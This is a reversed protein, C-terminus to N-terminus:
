LFLSCSYKAIYCIHMIASANTLVINYLKKAICAHVCFITFHIMTHIYLTATFLTSHSIYQRHMHTPPESLPTTEVPTNDTSSMASSAVRKVLSHDSVHM